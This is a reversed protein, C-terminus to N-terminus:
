IHVNREMSAGVYMLFKHVRFHYPIVQLITVLFCEERNSLLYVWEKRREKRRGNNKRGRGGREERGEERGSPSLLRPITITLPFTLFLSPVVTSPIKMWFIRGPERVSLSPLYACPGQVVNTWCHDIKLFGLLCPQFHDSSYGIRKDGGEQHGRDNTRGKLKEEKRWSVPLPCAPLSWCLGSPPLWQPRPRLSVWLLWPCHWTLQRWYVQTTLLYSTLCPILYCAFTPHWTFEFRYVKKSAWM